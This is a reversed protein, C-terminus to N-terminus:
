THYKICYKLEYMYIEYEHSITTLIRYDTYMKNVTECM